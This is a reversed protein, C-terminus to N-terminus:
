RVVRVPQGDRMTDPTLVLPENASLGALVEVQGEAERGIRLWRLRAHGDAVVYVGTLAGRRVLVRSPITLPRVAMHPGRGTEDHTAAIEAIPDATEPSTHLRVRAFAGPELNEHTDTAFRAIRTRTAYDTMGDVRVLRAARWPGDNVQFGVRANALDPLASEPIAAEIEGVELSRLDLLAQGQSVTQGPDVHRRAVVGAFPAAIATNEEWRELTARADALAAEASATELVAIELDREAVVDQALLARMRGEDSRAQSVRAEAARVGERASRVADRTEPADFHALIEGPEFRNGERKPLATLPAAIRATLTVEERAKVRGPVVLSALGAEFQPLVVEVRLTDAQAPERTHQADRSACGAALLISLVAVAGAARGARGAHFPSSEALIRNGTRKKM